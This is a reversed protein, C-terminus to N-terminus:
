DVTLYPKVKELWAADKFAGIRALDNVSRFQGHQARYSLILTAQRKDFYPHAALEDATATNLNIKRFVPTGMELMTKIEQFVSDPLGRSESVQAVSAFGGLKERFYVIKQARATGIGPLQQWDEATSRNIDLRNKAQKPPAPQSGYMAPQPPQPAAPAAIEIFPELRLYDAEALLYLKRFDSKQRFVGGKARYNEISQATRESLGLRIFDATTATNPDFPFNQAPRPAAQDAATPNEPRAIEIFDRLREFDAASLTYIKQFDDPADFRGGHERYNLIANAVREPLGLRVFEDFTATNPDFKFLQTKGEALGEGPQTQGIAERLATVEQQIESFDTSTEPRFLRGIEPAIFVAVCVFALAAAANREGRNFELYPLPRKKM